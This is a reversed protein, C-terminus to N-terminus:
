WAWSRSLGSITPADHLGVVGALHHDEGAGLAGGLPQGVLELLAAEGGRADVAVEVCTSRSFASVLNRSSRTLTSTAVSTAARPMSTESM